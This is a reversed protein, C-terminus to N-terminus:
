RGVGRMRGYEQGMLIHAYEGDAGKPATIEFRAQQQFLMVFDSGGFLFNGLMEGKVHLSDAVVGPEFNVSSVQAMGMPILAVLGYEVTDVIVYGRTQWFQWGTSDVPDYRKADADWDVELSVNQSIRRKDKIIGGVAFHYRHYDFVNLFTHTLVGNAFADKYPSDAGLLQPISYYRDLKIRLGGEVEIQSNADIPWVGQPVSDAPSVVVSPDTPDAIPRQDPSRLYRAFFENFTTWNAPSEYWGASLGFAPDALFQDYTTQNWSGRTDLFEGWANAFARTWDAFPPYYQISNSYFGKDRLEPLPQDILFYFYCISQLIQERIIDPPNILVEQPILRSAEDVYDLYTMYRDDPVKGDLTAVPNTIPDPNIDHAKKISTELLHRIEPQDEMLEILRLTIEQHQRQEAVAATASWALGFIIIVALWSRRMPVTRM